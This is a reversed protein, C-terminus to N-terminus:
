PARAGAAAVRFARRRHVVLARHAAHVRRRLRAHLPVNDDRRDVHAVLRVRRRLRLPVVGPVALPAVAHPLDDLWVHFRFKGRVPVQHRLIIPSLEIVRDHPGAPQALVRRRALDRRAFHVQAIGDRPLIDRRHHHLTELPVVGDSQCKVANAAFCRDRFRNCLHCLLSDVGKFASILPCACGLFVIYLMWHSYFTFNDHCRLHGDGFNTVDVTSILGLARSSVVRRDNAICFAKGSGIVVFGSVTDRIDSSESWDLHIHPMVNRCAALNAVIGHGRSNMKSSVSKMQVMFVRSHASGVGGVAHVHGVEGNPGMNEEWVSVAIGTRAVREFCQEGLTADLLTEGQSKGYILIRKELGTAKPNAAIAPDQRPPLMVTLRASGLDRWKSASERIYLRIKANTIGLPTGLRPDLPVPTAFGSSLSESNTSRTGEKSTITSKAINWIRSGGSFRRLASFASNMTGVSSDTVAISAPRSGNSRYTSSKRSGLHWWSSGGSSTRQANRQDMVEGWNSQQVPGRAHQLAAYRINDIRARNILAYLKACEDPSHSRFMVNNSTRIVSAASPPSRISIDVATGRRLPVLPTLELAVLPKIGHLSPTSGPENDLTVSEAQAIDFAEILGPTVFIWCEQPHLSEWAGRDAWAFISALMKAPPPRQAPAEGYNAQSISDSPLPSDPPSPSRAPQQHTSVYQQPMPRMAYQQFAKLDGVTSVADDEITSESTVSEEDEEDSVDSDSLSDSASSPEYEHKLPSSPRRSKKLFAPTFSPLFGSKFGLSTPRSQSAPQQTQKEEKPSVSKRRQTTAPASSPEHRRDDVEDGVRRPPPTVLDTRKRLKPINPIDLSPVSSTRRRMSPRAHVPPHPPRDDEDASSEDSLESQPLWVSYDKKRGDDVTSATWDSHSRAHSSVPRRKLEQYYRDRRPQQQEYYYDPQATYDSETTVTYDTTSLPSSPVSRFNRAKARQLRTSTTVNSVSNVESGDWISSAFQPKVGIPVELERPSVDDYTHRPPSDERVRRDAASRVVTRDRAVNFSSKRSIKAPPMPSSGFMQLWDACTQEDDAQITMVERWQQANAHFGRIMVVLEGTREGQRATVLSLPLPPFLLWRGSTSVECFLIDGSKGRDPADDRYIIEIKCCLQQGSSHVLEMDYYDRARVCRTADITVGAIPALSRPDRARTPDIAAAAEDELRAHESNVRQKADEVLGEYLEMAARAGSSPQIQNLAGLAKALNKVRALPRKLLHAVDVREGDGDVLDGNKDRPIGDDWAPSDEKQAAQDAPALNVIVDKFGMRWTRLYEAYVKAAGDAWAILDTAEHMPIRKHTTKLRELAIGMDVIPKTVDAPDASKSFVQAHKPAEDGGALAYQLLVPIVGDVLTRLERQYKLEDKSIDSMLQQVTTPESRQRRSHRRSNRISRASKIGGGGEERSMSLVSMLDSHKTTRRKLGSGKRAPENGPISSLLSETLYSESSPAPAYTKPRVPLSDESATTASTYKGGARSTESPAQQQDLWHSIKSAKKDAAPATPNPLAGSMMAEGAALSVGRVFRDKGPIRVTRRAGSRKLSPSGNPSADSWEDISEDLLEETHHLLDLSKKAPEKTRGGSSARSNRGSSGNKDPPTASRRPTKKPIALPEPTLSSEKKEVFPDTTGALWGEVANGYVRPGVPAAPPMAPKKTPESAVHLTRDANKPTTARQAEDKVPTRSSRRNASPRASDVEVEPSGRPTKERSSVERSRIKRVRPRPESQPRAGDVISSTPTTIDTASSPMASSPATFSSDSTRHGSTRKPEEDRQRSVKRRNIFVKTGQSEFDPTIARDGVSGSSSPSRSKRIPRNYVMEPDTEVYEISSPPVKLGVNVVSRRIVIPKPTTEKQKEKAAVEEKTPRDRRWHGDSVVRKKPTTAQKVEATDDPVVIEVPPAVAPPPKSRRRVWARREMDVNRMPRKVEGPKPSVKPTTAAPSAANGKDAAAETAPVDDGGASAEVIVEIVDEAPAKEASKVKDVKPSAKKTEEARKVKAADGPKPKPKEEEKEMVKEKEKEGIDSDEPPPPIPDFGQGLVGGGNMNWGQIKSTFDQSRKKLLKPMVNKEPTPKGSAKRGTKPSPM